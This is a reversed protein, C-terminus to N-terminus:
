HQHPEVHGGGKQVLEMTELKRQLAQLNRNTTM